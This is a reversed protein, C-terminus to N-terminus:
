STKWGPTIRGPVSPATHRTSASNPKETTGILQAPAASITSPTASSRVSANTVLWPSIASDPTTASQAPPRSSNRVGPDSMPTDGNTTSVIATSNPTPSAVTAVLTTAARCLGAVAIPRAPMSPRSATTRVGSDGSPSTYTSPASHCASASLPRASTPSVTIM